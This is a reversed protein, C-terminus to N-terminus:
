LKVEMLVVILSSSWNGRRNKRKEVRNSSQCKSLITCLHFAFKDLLCLTDVALVGLHRRYALGRTEVDSLTQFRLADDAGSCQATQLNCRGPSM